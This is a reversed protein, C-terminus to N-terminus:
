SGLSPQGQWPEAPRPKSRVSLPKEYASFGLSSPNHMRGVPPTQIKRKGWIRLWASACPRRFSNAGPKSLDLGPTKRKWGTIRMKGSKKTNRRGWIAAIKTKAPSWFGCPTKVRLGWTFSTRVSVLGDLPRKLKAIAWSQRVGACRCKVDLIKSEFLLLSRIDSRNRELGAPEGWGTKANRGLLDQPKAIGPAEGTGWGVVPSAKEGFCGAFHSRSGHLSGDYVVM